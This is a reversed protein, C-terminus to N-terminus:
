SRTPRQQGRRTAAPVAAATQREDGSKVTLDLFDLYDLVQAEQM